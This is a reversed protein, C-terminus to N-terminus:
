IMKIYLFISLTAAFNHQFFPQWECMKSKGKRAKQKPLAFFTAISQKWSSHLDRRSSSIQM